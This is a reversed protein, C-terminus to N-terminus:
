DDERLGIKQAVELEKEDTVKRTPIGKSIVYWKGKIRKYYNSM